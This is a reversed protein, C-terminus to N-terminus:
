KEFNTVLLETIKGRKSGISNIMRSAFVENITFFSDNYLDHLFNDNPDLNKPNSNSLMVKSGKHHCLKVFNSLKIQAEDNFNSKNYSTFGGKTIPRYPPDFYIFSEKNAYKELNNYDENLIIVMNNNNIDKKNLIDSIAIINDDSFINPNKYKGSPVNFEGKSNERYLGNFCTKNLFIFLSALQLNDNKSKNEIFILENFLDRKNYFYKKRSEESLPIYSSKLDSLLSILENPYDRIQLYTNILNYNIDNIIYKSFINNSILDFFLAGAGLFPEIYTMNESNEIIDIKEKLTPLLQTKGGAWKLFPKVNKKM